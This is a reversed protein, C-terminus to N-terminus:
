FGRKQSKGGILEIWASQTFRRAAKQKDHNDLLRPANAQEVYTAWLAEQRSDNGTPAARELRRWLPAEADELAQREILTLQRTEALASIRGITVCHVLDDLLKLSAEDPDVLLRSLISRARVIEPEAEDFRQLAVFRFALATRWLGVELTSEKGKRKFSALTKEALSIWVDGAVADDLVDFDLKRLAMSEIAYLDFLSSEIHRAEGRRGISKTYKRLYKLSDSTRAQQVATEKRASLNAQTIEGGVVLMAVTAIIALVSLTAAVPRRRAWLRTIHPLSPKRWWIPERSLWAQLDDALAGASSHRDQPRWALARKCIAELDADVDRRIARISPAKADTDDTHCYAWIAEQSDGNPLQGTLLWLLLGGIAYIDTPPSRWGIDLRFQEPSMFAMSGVIQSNDVAPMRSADSAEVAVGFDTVKPVNNISILINDPKIDAHILSALHAAQVGRAVDRVIRAADQASVSRGRADFWADLDGSPVYEMVIYHDGDNSVNRDIVRVVNPHDIRRAKAAELIAQRMSQDDNQANLIKVAVLADSREDSLQRDVGLYVDAFAGRGLLERLQYRRVGTSTMPGFDTPLSLIARFPLARRMANTSLLVDNLMAATSIPGALGPHQATLADVAENTIHSSKSLARLAMDIAADLAIPFEILQPCADLYRELRVDEGRALRARADAEIVDALGDDNITSRDGLFEKLTLSYRSRKLLAIYTEAVNNHIRTM